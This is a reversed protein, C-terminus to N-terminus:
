LIVSLTGGSERFSQWHKVQERLQAVCNERLTKGAGFRTVFTSFVNYLAEKLTFYSM